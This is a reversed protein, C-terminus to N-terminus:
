WSTSMKVSIQPRNQTTM